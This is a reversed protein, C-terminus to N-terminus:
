TLDESFDDYSFNHWMPLLKTQRRPCCNTHVSIGSLDPLPSGRLFESTTQGRIILFIHFMFLMGVLLILLLSWSLGIIVSIVRLFPTNSRMGTAWGILVFISCGLVYFAGLVVSGVFCIFHGYNRIGICTGTWQFHRFFDFRFIYFFFPLSSLSSFVSSLTLL